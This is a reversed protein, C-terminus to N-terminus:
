NTGGFVARLFWILGGTGLFGLLWNLTALQGSVRQILREHDAVKKVIGADGTGKNYFLHGELIATRQRLGLTGNGRVDHKLSEVERTLHTLLANDESPAALKVVGFYTTRQPLYACRVKYYPEPSVGRIRSGGTHKKTSYKTGLCASM